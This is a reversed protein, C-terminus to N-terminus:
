KKDGQRREHCQAPAAPAGGALGLINGLGGDAALALGERLEARTGGLCTFHATAPVNWRRQIERCLEITRTRTTGGAGYTCSIFAPKFRALRGVNDWLSEDGEPTKPPFIEFSVGFEGPGYIEAVRM